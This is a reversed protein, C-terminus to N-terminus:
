ISSGLIPCRLLSFFYIGVQPIIFLCWNFKPSIHRIILHVLTLFCSPITNVMQETLMYGSICWFCTTFIYQCGGKFIWVQQKVVRCPYRYCTNNVHHIFSWNVPKTLFFYQQFRWKHFHTWQMLSILHVSWRGSIYM